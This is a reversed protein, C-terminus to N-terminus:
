YPFLSPKGGSMFFCDYDTHLLGLELKVSTKEYVRNWNAVDYELNYCIAAGYNQTM